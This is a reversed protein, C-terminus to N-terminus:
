RRIPLTTTVVGGRKSELNQVIRSRVVSYLGLTDRGQVEISAALRVLPTHQYVLM